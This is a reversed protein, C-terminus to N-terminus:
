ESFKQLFWLVNQDHVQLAFPKAKIFNQMDVSNVDGSVLRDELFIHFLLGFLLWLRSLFNDNLCELLCPMLVPGPNVQACAAIPTLIASQLGMAFYLTLILSSLYISISM